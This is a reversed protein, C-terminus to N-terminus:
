EQQKILPPEVGAATCFNRDSVDRLLIQSREHRHEQVGQRSRQAPRAFPGKDNGSCSGILPALYSIPASGRSYNRSASASHSSKQRSIPQRQPLPNERPEGSEKKDM